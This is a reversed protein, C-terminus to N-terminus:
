VRIGGSPWTCLVNMVLRAREMVLRVRKIVLGADCVIGSVCCLKM